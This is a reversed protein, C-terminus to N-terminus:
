WVTMSHGGGEFFEKACGKAVKKNGLGTYPEALIGRKRKFELPAESGFGTLAVHGSLGSSDILINV